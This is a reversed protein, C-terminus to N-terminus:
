KRSEVSLRRVRAKWQREDKRDEAAKHEREIEQVLDRLLDVPELAPDTAWGWRRLYEKAEELATAPHRVSRQLAKAREAMDRHRRLLEAKTLTAM